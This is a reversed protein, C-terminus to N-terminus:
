APKGGGELAARALAAGKALATLKSRAISRPYGILGADTTLFLKEAPLIALAKQIGAAVEPPSETYYNKNSVAGIGVDKTEAIPKLLAFDEERFGTQACSIAIADVGVSGVVPLIKAYPTIGPPVGMGGHTIQWIRYAEIGDFMATVIEATADWLPPPTTLFVDDMQVIKAGAAVCALMEARYVAALARVLDLWDGGYTEDVLLGALEVPGMGFQAKVPRDTAAQATEWHTAFHLAGPGPTGTVAATVSFLARLPGREGSKDGGHRSMLKQNPEPRITIGTMRHVNYLFSSGLGGVNDDYWLVGSSPLHVGAAVQEAVVTRVADTYSEEFHEDQFALVLNRDAFNAKHWKPRPYTGQNTVPLAVGALDRLRPRAM